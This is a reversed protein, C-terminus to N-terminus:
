LGSESLFRALSARPEIMTLADFSSSVAVLVGIVGGSTFVASGSAGPATPATVVNGGAYSGRYLPAAGAGYVGAPAGVYAVPQDYAPDAPAVPLAPGLYGSSVILCLDAVGSRRMFVARHKSGDRAVLAISPDLGLRLALGIGDCVHGATVLFTMDRASSAIWATGSGVSLQVKFTSDVARTPTVPAAPAPYQCAAALLATVLAPARM